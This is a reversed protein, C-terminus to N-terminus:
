ASAAPDVGEAAAEALWAEASSAVEKESWGREDGLMEAVPRGAEATRLEPAALIGLRTRRLLVDGVSRAQEYRAAVLVEALLDPMSQVIPEALGEKEGAIRLLKSSFQGYRFRLLGAVGDHDPVGLDGLAALDDDSAPMGLPLDATRCPAQRGEREVMRDVVQKAMRRWTTLKGGTITLM